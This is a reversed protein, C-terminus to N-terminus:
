ARGILLWSFLAAWPMWLGVIAGAFLARRLPRREVQHLVLPLSAAVAGEFLMVYFPTHGIRPAVAYQWWRAHYAMEEYFPVLLGGCIGALACAMGLPLRPVLGRLRWGLYGLQMLVLAWSLPMYAPSAWIMPEGAPYSLSHVVHEGAADTFLEIVGAVCGLLFLRGLLPRWDRRLAMAAFYVALVVDLAVAARWGAALVASVVNGAVSIAVSGLLAVDLRTVRPAREQGELTAPASEGVAREGRMSELAM